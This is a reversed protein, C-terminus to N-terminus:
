KMLLEFTVTVTESGLVQSLGNPNEIKGLKTYNYSTSFTKYFLVLTNSGWLMIDGANITGPNALNTPLNGPLDFYKENGNLDSMTITLPLMKKLENAADNSALITKFQKNGVTIMVTDKRLGSNQPASPSFNSDHLAADETTCSASVILPLLLLIAISASDKMLKNM